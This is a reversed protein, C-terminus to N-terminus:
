EGPYMYGRTGDAVLNATATFNLAPVDAPVLRDFDFKYNPRLPRMERGYGVQGRAILFVNLSFPMKVTHAHM